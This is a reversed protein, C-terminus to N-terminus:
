IHFNQSTNSFYDMRLLIDSIRWCEQRYKKTSENVNEGGAEIGARYIAYNSITDSFVCEGLGRFYYDQCKMINLLSPYIDIQGIVKDTHKSILPSNLVIFPVYCDESKLEERNEYQNFTVADHDGTIIIISNDYLQAAKLDTIFNNICKDVYQAAVLYYKVENNILSPDNELPSDILSKNYPPHSSYTVLQAYFPQKFQKLIPLSHKFLNEDAKSMGENGQLKEYLYDFHYATTMREQNWFEKNDCLFSATIYGQEKLAEALSPFTNETCLYSTAGTTLPLLGTNLILQADSSRGDRVQPMTKPFYVTQNQKLLQNIYPTIEIGNVSRNILWSQFSEILIIILNKPTGIVTDTYNTLQYSEKMFRKGYEKEETSIGRYTMAQHIWFNAIGFEKFARLPELKFHTQLLLQICGKHYCTTQAHYITMGCFIISVIFSIIKSCSHWQTHEIVLLYFLSFCIVPLVIFFDKGRVSDWICPWLGNLNNVMLYSKLPMITHYTRYYWAISLFYLAIVILYPFIFIKKKIFLIPTALLIPAVLRHVQITWENDYNVHINHYLELTAFFLMLILVLYIITRDYLISLLMSNKKYDKM